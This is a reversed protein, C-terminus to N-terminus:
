FKVFYVVRLERDPHPERMGNRFINKLDFEVAFSGSAAVRLGANLFGKGSGLSNDANDNLGLDYEALLMAYRGLGVDVGVYGTVTDDGDDDEFSRNAGVHIGTHGTFWMFNKSAVVYVGKSKKTYRKLEEDYTGYGQSAYGVAIGPMKYGEELVRVRASFEVRPNLSVADEGLLDRGGFSIGAMGRGFMGVSLHGLIGDGEYFRFDVGVSGGPLLGATPSEVLQRPELDQQAEVRTATLVCLAALLLVPSPLRSNLWSRPVVPSLWNLPVFICHAVFPVFVCFAFPLPSAGTSARLYPIRSVRGVGKQGSRSEIQRKTLGREVM